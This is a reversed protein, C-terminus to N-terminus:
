DIEFEEIPGSVPANVKDKIEDVTLRNSYKSVIEKFAAAREINPAHNVVANTLTSEINDLHGKLEADSNYLPHTTGNSEGDLVIVMTRERIANNEANDLIPIDNFLAPVRDVVVGNENILDVPMHGGGAIKLWKRSVEEDVTDTTIMDEFKNVFDSKFYGVPVKSVPRDLELLPATIDKLEEVIAVEEKKIIDEFVEQAQKEVRIYEKKGEGSM